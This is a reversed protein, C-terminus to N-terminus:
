RVRSQGYLKLYPYYYNSGMGYRGYIYSESKTSGSTQVVCLRVSVCGIQKISMMILINRPVFRLQNTYVGPKGCM